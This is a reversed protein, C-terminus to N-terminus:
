GGFNLGKSVQSMWAIDGAVLKQFEETSRSLQLAHGSANFKEVVSPLAAATALEKYLRQVVDPPTGARM